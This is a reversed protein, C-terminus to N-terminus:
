EMVRGRRGGSPRTRARRCKWAGVQLSATVPCGTGGGRVAVAWFAFIPFRTSLFFVLGPDESPIGM